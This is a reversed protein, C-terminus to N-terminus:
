CGAARVRNPSVRDQRLLICARARQRASTPQDPLANTAEKIQIAAAATVSQDRRRAIEMAADADRAIATSKVAAVAARERCDQDVDVSCQGLLFAPAVTLAAGFLARWWSALGGHLLKAAATFSAIM